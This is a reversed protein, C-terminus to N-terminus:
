RAGELARTARHMVANPAMLVAATAASILLGIAAGSEGYRSILLLGAPISVAVAIVQVRFVHGARREARLANALVRGVYLLFGYAALAPLLPRATNFGDGFVVPVAYRGAFAVLLCYGAVPLATLAFVERVRAWLAATGGTSAARSFMVPFTSDIALLAVNLPAIVTLAVRLVAVAEADELVGSLYLYGHTGAVYFLQAGALWAGTRFIDQALAPEVRGHLSEQLQRFGTLVAALCSLAVAALALEATLRGAAALVAVLAIQPLCSVADNLLVTRFRGSTYLARRVFDQLQWAAGAFAMAVLLTWHGSGALAMAIGALGILLGLTIAAALQIQLATFTLSAYRGPALGPGLLNHPQGVLGYLVANFILLTVYALAFLGFESTGMARAAIVTMALNTVSILAHDAIVVGSKAALVRWRPALRASGRVPYSYEAAM